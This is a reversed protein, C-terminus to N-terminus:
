SWHDSLWYWRWIGILAVTKHFFMDTTGLFKGIV